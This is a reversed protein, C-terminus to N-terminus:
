GAIAIIEPSAPTVPSGDWDGHRAIHAFGAEALFGAFEAQQMFRLTSESVVADDAAFRFHTEYSVFRGDSATVNYHVDVAGV